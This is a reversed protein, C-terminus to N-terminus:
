QTEPDFRYGEGRVTKIFQPLAPDTEIKKRLRTIAIDISRDDPDFDRGQVRTTLDSRSIVRNPREAFYVLLAYETATLRIETGSQDSLRRANRDLMYPGFGIGAPPRAAGPAVVAPITKEVKPSRDIRRAISRIRALLERLEYPKVLYDDAGIELGVVRDLPQGAATAMIVGAGTERRVWRCLSLGDEGPLAIDLVVVAAAREALAMRMQRGDPVGRTEIGMENLYEVVADRLDPEDEVVLVQIEDQM